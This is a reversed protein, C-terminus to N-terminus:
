FTGYGAHNSFLDELKFNVYLSHCGNIYNSLQNLSYDFAYGISINNKFRYGSFFGLSSSPQVNVSGFLKNKYDINVAYLSSIPAGSTVRTLINPTVFVNYNVEFKYGGSFYYSPKSNAISNNFENFYQTKLLNPISL